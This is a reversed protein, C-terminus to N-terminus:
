SNLYKNLVQILLYILYLPLVGRVALWMLAMFIVGVWMVVAEFARSMNFRRGKGNSNM